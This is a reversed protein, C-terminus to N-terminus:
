LRQRITPLRTRAAVARDVVPGPHAIPTDGARAISIASRFTALSGTVGDVM